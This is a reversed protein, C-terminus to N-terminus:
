HNFIEILARQFNKGLVMKVHEDTYGKKLLGEAIDYTRFPHNLGEITLLYDDNTHCQYKAPANELRAKRWER